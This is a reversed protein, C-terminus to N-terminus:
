SQVGLTKHWCNECLRNMDSIYVDGKLVTKCEQCKKLALLKKDSYNRLKPCKIHKIGIGKEWDVKTDVAIVKSCEICKNEYRNQILMEIKPQM